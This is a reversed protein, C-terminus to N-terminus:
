CVTGGGGREEADPADIIDLESALYWLNFGPEGDVDVDFGANYRSRSQRVTGTLDWGIAGCHNVRVRVPKGAAVMDRIEEYSAM